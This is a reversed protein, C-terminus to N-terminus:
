YYYYYYYYYYHYSYYSYSYYPYFQFSTSEALGDKRWSIEGGLEALVLEGVMLQLSYLALASPVM